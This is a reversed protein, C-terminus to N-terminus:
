FLPLCLILILIDFMFKRYLYSSLGLYKNFSTVRAEPADASSKSTIM